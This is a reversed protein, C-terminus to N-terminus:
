CMNFQPDVIQQCGNGAGNNDEVGSMSGSETLSGVDGFLSLRPTQYPRRTSGDNATSASPIKLLNM